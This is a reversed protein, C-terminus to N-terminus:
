PLARRAPSLGDKYSRDLGAALVGLGSMQPPRIMLGVAARSLTTVMRNTVRDPTPLRARPCSCFSFALGAFSFGVCASTLYPGCSLFTRSRYRGLDLPGVGSTRYM